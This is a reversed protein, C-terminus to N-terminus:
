KTTGEIVTTNICISTPIFNLIGTIIYDGFTHLNEVRVKTFQEQEIIYDTKNNSVPVAGWLVYWNKKIIRKEMPEMETALAVKRNSPAVMKSSYCSTFLVSALFLVGLFRMSKKMFM